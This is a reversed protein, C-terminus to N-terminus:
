IRNYHIDVNHLDWSHYRSTSDTASNPRVNSTTNNPTTTTLNPKTTILTNIATDLSPNTITNITVNNQTNTATSSSFDPRVNAMTNADPNSSFNAHTNITYNPRTNTITNIATTPSYLINTDHNIIHTSTTATCTFTNPEPTTRAHQPENPRSQIHTHDRENIHDNHVAANDGTIGGTPTTGKPTINTGYATSVNYHFNTNNYDPENTRTGTGRRGTHQHGITTTSNNPNYYESSTGVHKLANPHTTTHIHAIEGVDTPDGTHNHEHLSNNTRTHAAQPGM